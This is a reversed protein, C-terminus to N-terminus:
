SSSCSRPSALSNRDSRVSRSWRILDAIMSDKIYSAFDKLFLVRGVKDGMEFYGARFRIGDPCILDRFDLGRRIAATQDFTFYQEEGPRM